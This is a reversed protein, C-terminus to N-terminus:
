QASNYVDCEPFLEIMEMRSLETVDGINQMTEIQDLHMLYHAMWLEYNYAMSVDLAKMAESRSGLKSVAGDVFYEAAMLGEYKNKIKDVVGPTHISNAYNDWDIKAMGSTGSSVKNYYDLM